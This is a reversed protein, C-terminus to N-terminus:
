KDLFLTKFPELNNLITLFKLNSGLAKNTQDDM